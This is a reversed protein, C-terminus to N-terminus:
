DRACSRLRHCFRICGLGAGMREAFALGAASANRSGVIAVKHRQMHQIQGRVILLPPPADVERLALPYDPEGLAILRAGIRVIAELERECEEVSAIKIRRGASSRRVLEPLAALAAHAGGFQNILSRFTRPGINESRILRLWDFRQADTLSTGPAKTM